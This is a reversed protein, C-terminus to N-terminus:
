SVNGNLLVQADGMPVHGSMLFAIQGGALKTAKRAVGAGQISTLSRVLAAEWESRARRGKVCSGRRAIAPRNVLLESSGRFSSVSHASCPRALGLGSQSM